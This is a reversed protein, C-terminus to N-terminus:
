QSTVLHIWHILHMQLDLLFFIIYLLGCFYVNEKIYILVKGAHPLVSFLVVGFFSFKALPFLLQCQQSYEKGEFSIRKRSM